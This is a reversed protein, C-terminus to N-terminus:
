GKEGRLASEYDAPENLNLLSRLTPDAARLAEDALLLDEDAILTPVREFLFFPRLRGADLLATVHPRVSTAYVACLPHYHGGARPVVIDYSAGTDGTGLRLGLLRRILEPALFPVDTSSAFAADARTTLAELGAAIGQLPGRGVVRDRVIEVDAPLPPVDQEPAAVVVVPAAARAVRRVVRQLLTEDGFPLWAKPRGM